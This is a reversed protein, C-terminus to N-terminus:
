HDWILSLGTCLHVTPRSTVLQLRRGHTCIHDTTLSLNPGQLLESYTTFQGDNIHYERIGNLCRWRAQQNCMCSHIHLIYVQCHGQEAEFSSHQQQTVPVLEEQSVQQQENAAPALKRHPKIHLHNM